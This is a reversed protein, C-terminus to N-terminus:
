RQIIEERGSYKFIKNSMNCTYMHLHHQDTCISRTQKSVQKARVFTTYKQQYVGNDIIFDREKQYISPM